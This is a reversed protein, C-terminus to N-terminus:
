PNGAEICTIKMATCNNRGHHKRSTQVSHYLTRLMEFADHRAPAMAMSRAVESRQHFTVGIRATADKYMAKWSMAMVGAERM